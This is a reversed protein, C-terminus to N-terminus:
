NFLFSHNLEILKLLCDTYPQTDKIFNYKQCISINKLVLLNELEEYRSHTLNNIKSQYNLELIKKQLPNTKLSIQAQLDTNSLIILRNYTSDDEFKNIEGYLDETLLNIVFSNSKLIKESQRYEIIDKLISKLFEKNFKTCERQYMVELNLELNRICSKQLMSLDYDYFEDAKSCYFFVVASNLFTNSSYFNEGLNKECYRDTGIKITQFNGIKNGVIGYKEKSVFFHNYSIPSMSTISSDRGVIDNLTEAKSTSIFFFLILLINIILFKKM